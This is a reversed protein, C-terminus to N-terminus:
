VLVTIAYEIEAGYYTRKRNGKGESRETRNSGTVELDLEHDKDVKDILDETEPETDTDLSVFKNCDPCRM